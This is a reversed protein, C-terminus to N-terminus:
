WCLHPALGASQRLVLEGGAQRSPQKVRVPRQSLPVNQVGMRGWKYVHTCTSYTCSTWMYIIDVHTCHGLKYVHIKSVYESLWSVVWGSM